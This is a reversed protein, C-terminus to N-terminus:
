RASGPSAQGAAAAITDALGSALNFQPRFGVEAALRTVDAAIVPPDNVARPRAGFRLLPRAGLQGALEELLNRLSVADGSGINVPGEAASDLLAVLARAADGVHLYDRRQYGESTPFAHGARLATVADSVLRGPREGPGYLFFLRAWALSLGTQRAYAMALRRTSDKAAGYLTAPTCPTTAESLLPGGWAYEACSGVMVARTGGADQFLRLLDVSAAAWDLNAPAHWYVGPEAVWALHILGSAATQNVAERRAAPDLLDVATFGIGSQPPRSRGIAHVEHGAALLTSVVHQGVFGGAGTLLVRM